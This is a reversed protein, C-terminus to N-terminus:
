LKSAGMGLLSGPKCWRCGTALGRSYSDGKVDGPLRRIGDAADARGAAGAGPFDPVLHIATYRQAQRSKGM